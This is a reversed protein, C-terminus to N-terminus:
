SRWWVLFPSYPLAAANCFGGDLLDYGLLLSSPKGVLAALLYSKKSSRLIKLLCWLWQASPDSSRKNFSQVWRSLVWRGASQWGKFYRQPTLDSNHGLWASCSSEPRPFSSPGVWGRGGWVPVPSDARMVGQHRFAYWRDDSLACTGLSSGWQPWERVGGEPGGLKTASM